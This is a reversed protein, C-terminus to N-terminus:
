CLATLMKNRGTISNKPSANLPMSPRASCSCGGPDRSNGSSSRRIDGAVRRGDGSFSKWAPRRNRTRNELSKWHIRVLRGTEM